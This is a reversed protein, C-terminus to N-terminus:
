MQQQTTNVFTRVFRDNMELDSVSFVNVLDKLTMGAYRCMVYYICYMGCTDSGFDQLRDCNTLYDRRLVREFGVNYYEPTKGLSDFFEDPGKDTFYFTVWHKGPGGRTDTNAIVFKDKKISDASCISVPYGRLRRQLELNNM